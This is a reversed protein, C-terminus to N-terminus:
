DEEEDEWEDDEWDDWDEAFDVEFENTGIVELDVGCEPCTVMAGLRPSEVTIVADCNPCYTTAM